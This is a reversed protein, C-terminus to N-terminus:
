KANKPFMLDHLKVYKKCYENEKDDGCEEALEKLKETFENYKAVDEKQLILLESRLFETDGLSVQGEVKGGILKNGFLEMAGVGVGAAGVVSAITGLTRGKKKADLIQQKLSDYDAWGGCTVVQGMEFYKAPVGSVDIKPDKSKLAAKVFCVNNDPVEVDEVMTAYNSTDSYRSAWVFTNSVGINNAMCAMREKERMDKETAKVEEAVAASDDVTETTAVDSLKETQPANVSVQKKSVVGARQATMVRGSSSNRIPNIAWADVVVLSTLCFFLPYLRKM